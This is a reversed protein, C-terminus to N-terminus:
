FGRQQSKNIYGYNLNRLNWMNKRKSRLCIKNFFFYFEYIVFNDVSYYNQM